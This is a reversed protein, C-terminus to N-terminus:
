KNKKNEEVFKHMVTFGAIVIAAAALVFILFYGTVPASSKPDLPDTKDLVEQYDTVFDSDSDVVNSDTGLKSEDENTLGDGDFDEESVNECQPGEVCQGLSCTKCG